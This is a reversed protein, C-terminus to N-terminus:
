ARERGVARAALQGLRDVLTPPQDILPLTITATTGHGITSTLNIHGGHSEVLAKAIALGLGAGGVTRSRAGDARYFRDFIRELGETSIGMGSDRVTVSGETGQRAIEIGITGGPPTHAIANDLL